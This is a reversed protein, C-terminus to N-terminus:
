GVRRSYLFLVVAGLAFGICGNITLLGGVFPTAIVGAITGLGTWLIAQGVSARRLLLSGFLPAAVFGVAGGFGGGFMLSFPVDVWSSGGPANIQMAGLMVTGLSGGVAAGVGALKALGAASPILSSATRVPVAAFTEEKSSTM